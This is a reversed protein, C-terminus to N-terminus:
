LSSKPSTTETTVISKLSAEKLQRRRERIAAAQRAKVEPKRKWRQVDEVHREPHNQRWRRGAERVQRRRREQREEHSLQALEAATARKRRPPAEWVVTPAEQLGHPSVRPPLLEPRNDEVQPTLRKPRAFDEAYLIRELSPM